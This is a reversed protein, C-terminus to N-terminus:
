PLTRPLVTVSIVYSAHGTYNRVLTGVAITPKSMPSNTTITVTTTDQVNGKALVVAALVIGIVIITVIGVLLKWYKRLIQLKVPVEKTNEDIFPSKEFNETEVTDQSEVAETPFPVFSNTIIQQQQHDIFMNTENSDVETPMLQNLPKDIETEKSSIPSTTYSPPAIIVPRNLTGTELPKLCAVIQPFTPRINQDQKWCDEM